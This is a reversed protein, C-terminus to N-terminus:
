TRKAFIALRNRQRVSPHLGPTFPLSKPQVTFDRMARVEMTGSPYGNEEWHFVGTFTGTVTKDLTGPHGGHLAARLGKVGKTNRLMMLAIGTDKCKLDSLGEREVGDSEYQARVTVEKGNYINPSNALVCLSVKNVMEQPSASPAALLFYASITACFRMRSVALGYNM